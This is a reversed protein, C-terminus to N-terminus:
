AGALGREIETEVASAINAKDSEVLIPAGVAQNARYFRLTVRVREGEVTYLGRMEIAGPVRSDEAYSFPSGEADGRRALLAAVSTELNLPDDRMPMDTALRPALLIPRLRPLAIAAIEKSSIQGLPASGAFLARLIPTQEAGMQRALQGARDRATELWKQLDLAYITETDGHTAAGTKATGVAGGGLGELLSYTLVGHGLASFEYSAASAASGALVFYSQRPANIAFSGTELNSRAGEDLRTAAGAACTDLIVSVRGAAFRNIWAALEGGTLSWRAQYPSDTLDAARADATLFGYSQGKADLTVGHGAFFIVITDEEYSARAIELLAAALKEKTAAVIPTSEKDWQAGIDASESSFVQLNVNDPGFERRTAPALARALSSADSAAFRLPPIKDAPAQTTSVGVFVGFFHRARPRSVGPVDWLLSVQTPAGGGQAPQATIEIWNRRGLRLATAGLEIALTAKPADTDFRAGRVDSQPHSVGNVSVAVPGIGGGNNILEIKLTTSAGLPASAVLKPAARGVAVPGAVLTQASKFRSGLWGAQFTGAQGRALDLTHLGSVFHLGRTQEGGSSDYQQDDLLALWGGDRLGYVAGYPTLDAAYFFRLAGDAGCSMLQGQAPLVALESVGGAHAMVRLPEAEGTTADLSWRLIEGSRTAAFVAGKLGAVGIVADPTSFRRANQFDANWLALTGDSAGSM